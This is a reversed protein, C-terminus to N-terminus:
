DDYENDLTNNDFWAENPVYNPIVEIMPAGGLSLALLQM